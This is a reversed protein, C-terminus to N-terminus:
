GVKIQRVKDIKAEESKPLSITLVGQAYNASIKEENVDDPIQFSRSFSCKSFERRKYNVGETTEKKEVESSVKLRGDTFELNFDKKDLGPAAMEIVYNEDNEFINTAPSVCNTGNSIRTPSGFHSRTVPDDFFM